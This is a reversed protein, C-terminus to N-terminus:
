TTCIKKVQREQEKLGYNTIIWKPYGTLQAPDMWIFLYGM